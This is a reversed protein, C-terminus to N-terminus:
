RPPSSASRGPRRLPASALMLSGPGVATGALEPGSHPSPTRSAEGRGALDHSAPALAVTRGPLRLLTLASVRYVTGVPTRSFVNPPSGRRNSVVSSWGTM